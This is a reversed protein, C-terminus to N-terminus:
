YLELSARFDGTMEKGDLSGGKGRSKGLDRPGSHQQFSEEHTTNLGDVEGTRRRWGRNCMIYM